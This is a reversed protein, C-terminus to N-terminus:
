PLDEEGLALAMLMHKKIDKLLIHKEQLNYPDELFVMLELLVLLGTSNNMGPSAQIVTM